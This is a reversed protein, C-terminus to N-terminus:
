GGVRGAVGGLGGSQIETGGGAVGAGLLSYKAVKGAVGKAVGLTLAEVLGIAVGRGGSKLQLSKLKEPVEIINKIKEKAGPDNLNGGIEAMLLENLILVAEILTISGSM